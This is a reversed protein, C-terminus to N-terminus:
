RVVGRVVAKIVSISWVGVLAEGEETIWGSRRVFCKVSPMVAAAFDLTTRMSDSLKVAAASKSGGSKQPTGGEWARRFGPGMRCSHRLAARDRFAFYREM